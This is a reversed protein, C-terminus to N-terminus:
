SRSLSTDATNRSPLVVGFSESPRGLLVLETGSLVGTAPKICILVRGQAQGMSPIPWV